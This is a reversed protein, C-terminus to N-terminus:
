GIDYATILRGRKRRGSNGVPTDGTGPSNISIPTYNPYIEGGGPRGSEDSPIGPPRLILDTPFSYRYLPILAKSKVLLGM